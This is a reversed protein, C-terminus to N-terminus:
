ILKATATKVNTTDAATKKDHYSELYSTLQDHAELAELHPTMSTFLM